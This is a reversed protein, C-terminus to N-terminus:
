FVTAWPSIASATLAAATAPASAPNTLGTTSAGSLVPAIGTFQSTTARGRVTSVSGSVVQCIGIYYLGKYTTTYPTSLAINKFEGNNPTDTSDDNTVALKALNQDYLAYWLNTQGVAVTSGFLHGLFTLHEGKPLHIATLHLTGSALLSHNGDDGLERPFTEFKASASKLGGYIHRHPVNANFKTTVSPAYINEVLWTTTWVVANVAYSAVTGRLDVNRVTLDAMPVSDSNDVWVGDTVINYLQLGDVITGPAQNILIGYACNVAENNLFNNNEGYISYFAVNAGVVKCNRVTTFRSRIQFGYSWAGGVYIGNSHAECNDFVIHRGSGPHTDFAASTTEFGQCGSILIHAAEIDNPDGLTTFLHRGYRMTCGHVRGNWTGPAAAIFYPTASATDDLNLAHCDEISWDVVFELRIADQDLGKFRVRNFHVGQMRYFDFCNVNASNPTPNEITFDKFECGTLPTLLRIQTSTTYAFECTGRLTIQTGSDVSRVRVIQGKISGDTGGAANWYKVTQTPDQIVAYSDVSFPASSSVTLIADGTARAVTLTPATGASAITGALTFLPNVTSQHVIVTLGDGEDGRIRVNSSNPVLAGTALYRGKPLYAWRNLSAAATTAALVEATDDAVGDGVAGLMRANIDGVMEYWVTGGGSLAISFKAAHSPESAVQDYDTPTVSSTASYRRVRVTEPASALTLAQAIALTEFEPFDGMDGADGSRAFALLVAEGNVFPSTASAALPSVTINRYGAPAAVATVHWWIFRSVDAVAAIRIQGKIASSSDDFANLVGTVDVGNADLLDARITLSTNQQAASLRLTGNGPDADGITTSFIYRIGPAQPEGLDLWDGMTGDPLQFRIRDGDIEHSPKDGKPGPPGVPLDVGAISTDASVAGLGKINVFM